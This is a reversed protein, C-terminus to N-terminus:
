QKRGDQRRVDSADHNLSALEEEIAARLEAFGLTVPGGSLRMRPAPCFSLAMPTPVLYQREAIAALPLSLAAGGYSCSTLSYLCWPDRDM